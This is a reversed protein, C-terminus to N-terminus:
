QQYLKKVWEAFSHIANRNKGSDRLVLFHSPQIPLRVEFPAVLLGLQLYTQAFNELVMVAGRGAIAAQMAVLSSDVRVTSAPQEPAFDVHEALRIWDTESGPISIIERRAVEEISLDKGFSAAYDPHCVPIAFEYGLHHMAGDNWDGHGFRIDIDSEEDGFRDAWVFTSLQVEVDPNLAQYEALRPAIVLAACSISARIKIVQKRASGFIGQTAREMETFSKTVSLAYAQGKDTLSVGRPLRDFLASGLHDELARIQQSIAAPTLSMEDAAASFSGLRAASEFARLWTAHPLDM